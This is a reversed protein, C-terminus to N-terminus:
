VQVDVAGLRAASPADALVLAGPVRYILERLHDDDLRYNIPAYPVGAVAASFLAVALHPHNEGIYVVAAHDGVMTGGARALHALGAGTLTDDGVGLLKRDACGSEVMDLLSSLHVNGGSVCERGARRK